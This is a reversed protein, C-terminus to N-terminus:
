LYIILMLNPKDVRKNEYFSFLYLERGILCTLKNVMITLILVLKQKDLAFSTNEKFFHYYNVTDHNIHQHNDSFYNYLSYGNAM